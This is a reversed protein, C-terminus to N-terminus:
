TFPDKVEAEPQKQMKYLLRSSLIHLTLTFTQLTDSNISSFVTTM